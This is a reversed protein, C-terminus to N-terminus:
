SYFVNDLNNTQQDCDATRKKESHSNDQDSNLDGLTGCGGSPGPGGLDNAWAPIM